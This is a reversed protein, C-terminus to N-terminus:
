GWLYRDCDRLSAGKPGAGRVAKRFMKYGEWLREDHIVYALNEFRGLEECVRYDYVTFHEPWCVSLIASATPLGLGWERRLLILRSRETPADWLGSTLSRAAAELTEGRHTMLRRAVQSKARNAKWVIISFLNFATLFHDRQFRHTVETFLYRELDYYRLHESARM